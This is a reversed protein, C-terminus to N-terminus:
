IYQFELYTISEELDIIKCNIDNFDGRVSDFIISSREYERRIECFRGLDEIYGEDGMISYQSILQERFMEGGYYMIDFDEYFLNGKKRKLYARMNDMYRIQSILLNDLRELHQCIDERRRCLKNLRYILPNSKVQFEYNYELSSKDLM